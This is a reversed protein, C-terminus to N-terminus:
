PGNHSERSYRGTRHVPPDLVSTGDRQFLAKGGPSHLFYWTYIALATGLPFIWIYLVSLILALLRGWMRKMFVGYSTLFNLLPFPLFYLEKPLGLVHNVAHSKRIDTIALAILVIFTLLGIFGYAIGITKNHDHPTM